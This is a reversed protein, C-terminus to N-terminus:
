ILSFPWPPATFIEDSSRATSLLLRLCAPARYHQLRLRVSLSSRGARWCSNGMVSLRSPLFSNMSLTLPVNLRTCSYSVSTLCPAQSRPFTEAASLSLDLTLGYRLAVFSLLRCRFQHSRSLANRLNRFGVRNDEKQAEHYETILLNGESLIQM